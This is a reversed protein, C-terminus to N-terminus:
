LPPQKHFIIASKSSTVWSARRERAIGDSHKEIKALHRPRQWRPRSNLESLWDTPFSSARKPPSHALFIFSNKLLLRTSRSRHARELLLTVCTCVSMEGRRQVGERESKYHAYTPLPFFRSEEEGDRETWGNLHATGPDPDCENRTELQDRHSQLGTWRILFLSKRENQFMLASASHFLNFSIFTIHDNTVSPQSSVTFGAGCEGLCATTLLPSM